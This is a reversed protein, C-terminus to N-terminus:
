FFGYFRQANGGFIAEREDDRYQSTLAEATHFWTEYESALRCVPWDSGFMVRDPGFKELVHEAYPRLQAIDWEPGAESVLGSLKVLAKTERAVVAIDDAWPKFAGSAIAPKAGHDIVVRLDPYRQLLVLLFPLHRPRILADFTLELDILAQYAWSLAPNLMWAEYDIDQIMPRVGVFKPHRAFQELRKLDNTTSFDIWGVVGKVNPSADAIGLMYETEDTTAAAQILVVGDVGCAALAPAVDQPGYPQYLVRYNPSMWHYDGRAPHWFHLHADIRM